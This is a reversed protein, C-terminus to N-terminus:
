KTVEEIVHGVSGNPMQIRLLAALTAAIDTMYTERNTKGPKIKWGFWLLPIHTDYPNWTGHTTGKDWGDFWQPMFLFQIDGSLKQNYGNVVMNKIKEQIPTEPLEHLDFASMIAPHGKLENIAWAKFDDPDVEAAELAEYNLHLQYNMVTEISNKVSFKKEANENMWKRIVADDIAGGPM